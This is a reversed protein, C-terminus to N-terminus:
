CLTSFKSFREFNTVMKYGQFPVLVVLSIVVVILLVWLVLSKSKYKNSVYTLFDKVIAASVFALM